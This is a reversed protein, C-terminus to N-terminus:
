ICSTAQPITLLHVNIGPHVTIGRAYVDLSAASFVIREGNGDRYIGPAVELDIGVSSRDGQKNCSSARPRIDVNPEIIVDEEEVKDKTVNVKTTPLPSIPSAAHVVESKGIATEQIPSDCEVNDAVAADVYLNSNLEPPARGEVPTAAHRLTLNRAVVAGHAASEMPAPGPAHVDQNLTCNRSQWNYRCNACATRHTQSGLRSHISQAPVVCGVFPGNRKACYECPTTAEDGTLYIVLAVTNSAWRPNFRRLGKFTPNLEINRKRPLSMHVFLDKEVEPLDELEVAEIEDLSKMHLWMQNPSSELPTKLLKPRLYGPHAMTPDHQPRFDDMYTEDNRKYHTTLLVTQLNYVHFKVQVHLRQGSQAQYIRPISDM